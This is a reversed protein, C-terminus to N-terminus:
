WGTIAKIKTTLSEALKVHHSASSHADCGSLDPGGNAETANARPFEHYHVKPDNFPAKHREDVIAKLTTTVNTFTDYGVPYDDNFSSAVTCVIQANANKSRILTVLEHYKAKFAALNPPPRGDSQDWDNGGLSIVVVDPQWGTFAWKSQADEALTRGYLQAFVVPDDNDYNRLIGKGSYSLNHHEASLAIATLAAYTKHENSTRGEYGGNQNTCEVGYGTTSSDGIIEIHRTSPTPPPLLEGGGFDFGLFQTLGVFSETRRWLEVVHTGEPLDKVIVHDATGETPIFPKPQVKGDVIVDYNSPGRYLNTEDIKAKFTTGRFRAIVRAGPWEVKPGKEDSTDFRGVFRVEPPGSPEAGGDESATRDASPDTNGGGGDDSPSAVEPPAVPTADEGCGVASAMTLTALWVAAASGRFLSGVM